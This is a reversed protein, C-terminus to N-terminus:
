LPRNGQINSGFQELFSPVAGFDILLTKQHEYLIAELEVVLSEHITISNVNFKKQYSVPDHVLRVFFFLSRGGTTWCANPCLIWIVFQTGTYM